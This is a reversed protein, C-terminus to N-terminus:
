GQEMLLSLLFAGKSSSLSAFQVTKKSMNARCIITQGKYACSAMRNQSDWTMVRGASDTLTNGDADFTVASAASAGNNTASTLRNQHSSAALWRM